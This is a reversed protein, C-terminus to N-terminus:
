RPPAWKKLTELVREPFFKANQYRTESNKSKLVIPFCYSLLLRNNKFVIANQEQVFLRFKQDIRM